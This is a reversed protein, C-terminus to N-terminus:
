WTTGSAGRTTTRRGGAPTTHPTHPPPPTNRSRGMRESGGGGGWAGAGGWGGVWRPSPDGAFFHPGLQRAGVGVRVASKGNAYLTLFVTNDGLKYRNAADLAWTHSPILLVFLAAAPKCCRM